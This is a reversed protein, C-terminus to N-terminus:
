ETKCLDQLHDDVTISALAAAVINTPDSSPQPMAHTKTVVQLEYNHPLYMNHKEHM